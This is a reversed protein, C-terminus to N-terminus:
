SNKILYSIMKNLIEIRDRVMGLSINCEHCIWGRFLGTSHNHDFVTNCKKDCIECYETKERTARRYKYFSSRISKYEPNNKRFKRLRENAQERFTKGYCKKCYGRSDHKNDTTGCGLCKEHKFSWKDILLAGM